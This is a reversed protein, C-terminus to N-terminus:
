AKMERVAKVQEEDELNKAYGNKNKMDAGHAFFWVFAIACIVLSLGIIWWM